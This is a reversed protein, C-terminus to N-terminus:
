QTIPHSATYDSLHMDVNRLFKRGGNESYFLHSPAMLVGFTTNRLQKSRNAVGEGVAVGATSPGGKTTWWRSLSSIRLGMGNGPTKNKKIWSRHIHRATTLLPDV